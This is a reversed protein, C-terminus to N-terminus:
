REQVELGNRIFDVTTNIWEDLTRPDGQYLGHGASLHDLYYSRLLNELLSNLIFALKETDLDKRLEGNNQAEVLLDFLFGEGRRRLDVIRELGFPSDGSQLLHFYIRSLAPRRDIFEFGSRVLRDLRDFFSLGQTDERVKRLYIKVQDSALDVLGDFLNRKTSFYQFLSGKSIGATKVISNVSAKKYGHEAFEEAAATFIKERKESSLSQFVRSTTEKFSMICVSTPRNSEVAMTSWVTM